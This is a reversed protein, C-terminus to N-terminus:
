DKEQKIDLTYDLKAVGALSNSVSCYKNVSLEIARKVKDQPIDKGLLTYNIVIKKFVKPHDTAREGSVSIKLDDYQVRMKDLISVIDIGTCGGISMLLLEMPSAGLDDGGAAQNADMDVVSNNSGSIGKFHMKGQWNVDVKM